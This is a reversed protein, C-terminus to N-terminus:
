VALAEGKIQSLITRDTIKDDEALMFAKSLIISLTADGEFPLRVKDAGAKDWGRVICLYQDNPAMLINGSGLHIKYRRKTGRVTLFREGLECVEAIKLKPILAALVARRTNATESLDGFSFNRWYDVHGGGGEIWDPDNGISCVGVFLDVDRMLESFVLPPVRELPVPNGDPGLFRVQDSSLYLYVYAATHADNAVADVWFQVSLGQDELTREPVNHSDWAGQLDYRWGRQQCLARFQHQKLIHAAFRNSYIGTQREADTLVYIERHAQKFPQTIELDALRRRWALVQEAPEDIPHWLAVAADDGLWDLPQGDQDTIADGEALGSARQGESEFRWILRRALGSILPHDLYLARWEGLRWRRDALLLRELRGGQGSLTDKIEKAQAKIQKLADPHDRKVAAPVSKRVKGAADAWSLAVQDSGSIRILATFDGVREKLLGEPDLGFDPVSSEQLEDMSKGAREAAALLVKEIQKRASPYRVKGALRSLEAVGGGEALTGLAQLGANGLKVSRAGIGPVKKFCRETFRGLPAAIDGGDQTGASWILGKIVDGNADPHEPDLELAELWPVLRESFAAPGVARVLAAADKSWRAAPKGKDAALTAHALLADWKKIEAENLSSIWARAEDGWPSSVVTARNEGSLLRGIKEGQKRDEAYPGLKRQIRELARRLEDTWGQEAVRQEIVRLLGGIPFSAYQFNAGAITKVMAALDQNDLPLRKRLLRSILHKLAEVERHNWNTPAVQDCLAPVAARLLEAQDEPSAALIKRGTELEELKPPYWELIRAARSEARYAELVQNKGGGQAMAGTVRRMLRDLAM